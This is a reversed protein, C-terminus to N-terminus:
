KSNNKYKPKNPANGKKNFLSTKTTGMGKTAKEVKERKHGLKYGM